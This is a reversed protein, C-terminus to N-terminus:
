QHSVLRRIGDLSLTMQSCVFYVRLRLSHSFIPMPHLSPSVRVTQTGTSTPRTSAGTVRGTESDIALMFTGRTLVIDAHTTRYRRDNWLQCAWFVHLRTLLNQIRQTASCAMIAIVLDRTLCIPAPAHQQTSSVVAASSNQGISGMAGTIPLRAALISSNM